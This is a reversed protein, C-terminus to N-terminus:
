LVVESGDVEIVRVERILDYYEAVFSAGDTSYMAGSRGCFRNSAGDYSTIYEVEGSKQLYWKGAEIPTLEKYEKITKM